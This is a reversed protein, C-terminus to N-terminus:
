RSFRTSMAQEHCETPSGEHLHEQWHDYATPWATACGPTSACIPTSYQGALDMHRATRVFLFSGFSTQSQGLLAPLQAPFIGLAARACRAPPYASPTETLISTAGTQSSGRASPTMPAQGGRPCQRALTDLCIPGRLLFPREEGRL